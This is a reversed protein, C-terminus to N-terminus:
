PSTYRLNKNTLQFWIKRLPKRAPQREQANDKLWINSIKSKEIAFKSFFKMM